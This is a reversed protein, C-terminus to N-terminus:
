SGGANVTLCAGTSVPIPNEQTLRLAADLVDRVAAATLTYGIDPEDESQGFALGILRGQSDVLPGGSSGPVIRAQVELIQRSIAQLGYIDHGQARYSDLVVAPSAELRGAHPYGLVAGTTGRRAPTENIDLPEADLAQVYLVAVDSLPDVIVPIAHHQGSADIVESETAGAVVHAATLVLHAAVAVGSGATELGCASGKIKVTSPSAAIIAPELLARDPVPLRAAPKPNGCAVLLM